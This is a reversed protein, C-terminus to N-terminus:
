LRRSPNTCIGLIHYTLIGTDTLEYEFAQFSRRKNEERLLEYPFRSQPYKYLARMYSHDPLSDLYYYCEKVDEGHNGQFNISTRTPLVYFV